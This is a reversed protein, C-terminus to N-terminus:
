KCTDHSFHLLVMIYILIKWFKYSYIFLHLFLFPLFVTSEFICLLLELYEVLEM